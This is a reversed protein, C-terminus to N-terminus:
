MVIWVLAGLGLSVAALALLLHPNQRQGTKPEESVLKGPLLARGAETLRYHRARYVRLLGLDVLREAIDAAEAEADDLELSAPEADAASELVSKWGAPLRERVSSSVLKDDIM